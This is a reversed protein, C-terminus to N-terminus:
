TLGIYKKALGQAEWLRIPYEKSGKSEAKGVSTSIRSFKRLQIDKSGQEQGDSKARSPKPDHISRPFFNLFFACVWALLWSTIFCLWWSGIWLSDSSTLNYPIENVVDFDVYLSLLSGGMVFGIAPGVVFFTQFIGIYLPASIKDFSEDLLVTGLTIVPAAGVGHLFQGFLFFYKFNRLYSILEEREEAPNKSIGESGLGIKCLDNSQTFSSNNSNDTRLYVDTIFHPLSFLLSGTGMVFLGIAIYKPKSASSRGGFYTIPIVALLSGLDYFGAIQGSVVSALGFRQELSSIVVNVFGNITMGQISAAWSLFIVLGVASRFVKDQCSRKEEQAEEFGARSIATEDQVTAQSDNTHNRKTAHNVEDEQTFTPNSVGKKQSEM